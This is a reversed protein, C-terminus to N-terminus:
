DDSDNSEVPFLSDIDYNSVISASVNDEMIDEVDRELEELKEQNMIITEVDIDPTGDGDIDGLDAIFLHIWKGEADELNKYTEGGDDSYQILPYQGVKKIRIDTAQIDNSNSLIGVNKKNNITSM